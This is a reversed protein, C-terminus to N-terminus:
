NYNGEKEFVHNVVCMQIKNNNNNNNNTNPKENEERKGIIINHQQQQKHINNPKRKERRKKKEERWWYNIQFGMMMLVFGPSVASYPRIRCCQQGEACEVSYARPQSWLSLSRTRFSAAPSREWIADSVHLVGVVGSNSFKSALIKCCIGVDVSGFCGSGRFCTSVRKRLSHSSGFAFSSSNQRRFRTLSSSALCKRNKGVSSCISAYTVKIQSGGAPAGLVCGCCTRWTGKM